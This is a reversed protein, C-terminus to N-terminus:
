IHYFISQNIKTIIKFRNCNAIAYSLSSIAMSFHLPLLRRLRINNVCDPSHSLIMQRVASTPVKTISRSAEPNAPTSFDSCPRIPELTRLGVGGSSTKLVLCDPMERCNRSSQILRLRKLHHQQWHRARWVSSPWHLSPRYPHGIGCTAFSFRCNGPVDSLSSLSRKGRQLTLLFM